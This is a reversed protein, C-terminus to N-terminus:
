CSAGLARKTFAKEQMPLAKMTSGVNTPPLGVINMQPLSSAALFCAAATMSPKPKSAASMPFASAARAMSGSQMSQHIGPRRLLSQDWAKLSSLAQPTYVKVAAHPRAQQPSDGMFHVARLLPFLRQGTDGVAGGQIEVAM